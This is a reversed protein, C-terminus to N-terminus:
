NHSGHWEEYLYMYMNIFVFCLFFFGNKTARPLRSLLCGDMISISLGHAQLSPIDVRDVSNINAMGNSSDLASWQAAERGEKGEGLNRAPSKM